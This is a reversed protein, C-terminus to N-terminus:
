FIFNFMKQILEYLKKKLLCYGSPVTIGLKITMSVKKEQEKFDQDAQPQQNSSNERSNRQPIFYFRNRLDKPLSHVTSKRGVM